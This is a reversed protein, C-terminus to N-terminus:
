IDVAKDGFRTHNRDLSTVGLKWEYVSDDANYYIARYFEKDDRQVLRYSHFQCIFDIFQSAVVAIKKVVTSITSSTVDGDSVMGMHLVDEEAEQHVVNIIDYVLISGIIRGDKNVVPASLLSYQRFIESVEEQKAGPRIIKIDTNMLQRVMSNRKARIIDDLALIGVPQLQPNIVFIEHFKKNPRAHNCLFDVLQEM